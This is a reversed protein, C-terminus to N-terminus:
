HRGGSFFQPSYSERLGEEGIILERRETDALITMEATTRALAAGLANAVESHEPYRIPIDCIKPLSWPASRRRTRGVVYLIKPQIIKGELLEHITYVPKNNIEDLIQRVQDSIIVAM